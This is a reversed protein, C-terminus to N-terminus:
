RLIPNNVPFGQSDMRIPPCPRHDIVGAPTTPRPCDLVKGPCPISFTPSGFDDYYQYEYGPQIQQQFLTLGTPKNRVLEVGIPTLHLTNAGTISGVRAVIRVSQSRGVAMTEIPFRTLKRGPEIFVREPLNVGPEAALEVMLGEPPAPANSAVMGELPAGGEVRSHTFNVYLASQALSPLALCLWLLM